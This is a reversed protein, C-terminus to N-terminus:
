KLRWHGLNNYNYEIEDLAKELASLAEPLDEYASILDRYTKTAMEDSLKSAGYYLESRMRNDAPMWSIAVKVKQQPTLLNHNPGLYKLELEDWNYNAMKKQM